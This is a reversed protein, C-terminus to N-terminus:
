CCSKDSRASSCALATSSPRRCPGSPRTGIASFSLRHVLKPVVVHEELISALKACRVVRRGHAPQLLRAGDERCSSGRHTKRHSLEVSFLAKLVVRLGHSCSARAPRCSRRTPPPAPPPIHQALMPESVPPEIRCGRRQAADDPELGSVPADAPVPQDRERRAEILDPRKPHVTASTPSNIFTMEPHSGFSEVLTSCSTRVVQPTPFLRQRAQADADGLFKFRASPARCAPERRRRHPRSAIDIAPAVTTFTESGCASYPDGGIVDNGRTLCGAIEGAVVADMEPMASFLRHLVDDLQETLRAGFAEAFSTCRRIM